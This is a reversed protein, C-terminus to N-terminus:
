KAGAKLLRFDMARTFEESFINDSLEEATRVVSDAGVMEPISLTKLMQIPYRDAETRKVVQFAYGFQAFFCGTVLKAPADKRIRVKVGIRKKGFQPGAVRVQKPRANFHILGIRKGVYTLYQVNVGGKKEFRIRLVSKILRALVNYRERTTKSIIVRVKRATVRMAANMAADVIKSDFAKRMEKVPVVVGVM